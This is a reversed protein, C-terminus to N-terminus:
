FKPYWHLNIVALEIDVGEGLHFSARNLAEVKETTCHPSCPHYSEDERLQPEDIYVPLKIQSSNSILSQIKKHFNRM